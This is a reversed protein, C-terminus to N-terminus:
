EALRKDKELKKQANKSLTTGAEGTGEPTTTAEEKPVEPAKSTNDPNM